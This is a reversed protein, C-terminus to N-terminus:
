EIALAAEARGRAPKGADSAGEALRDAGVGQRQRRAQAFGLEVQPAVLALEFAVPGRARKEEDALLRQLPGPQEVLAEEEVGLLDVEAQPDLPAAPPDPVQRLQGDDVVAAAGAGARPHLRLQGVGAALVCGLM